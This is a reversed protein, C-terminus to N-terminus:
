KGPSYHPAITKLAELATPNEPFNTRFHDFQHYAEEWHQEAMAMWGLGTQAGVNQPYAKQVRNFHHTAKPYNKEYYYVWGLQEHAGFNNKDKKLIDEYVQKAKTLSTQSYAFGLAMASDFDKSDENVLAEFIPISQAYKKQINYIYGTNRRAVVEQPNYKLVEQYLNFAEEYKGQYYSEDAKIRNNRASIFACGVLGVTM